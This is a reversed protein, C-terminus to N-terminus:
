AIIQATAKKQSTQAAGTVLDLHHIQDIKINVPHSIVQEVPKAVKIQHQIIAGSPHKYSGANKTEIQYGVLKTEKAVGHRTQTTHIALKPGSVGSSNVTVANPYSSSLSSSSNPYINDISSCSESNFYWSKSCYNQCSACRSVGPVCSNSHACWGCKPSSACSNCTKLQNCTSYYPMRRISCAPSSDVIVNLGFQNKYESASYSLPNSRFTPTSYGSSRYKPAQYGNSYQSNYSKTLFPQKKKKNEKHENERGLCGSLLVICVLSILIKM